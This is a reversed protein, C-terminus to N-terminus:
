APCILYFPCTPCVYADPKPTFDQREIGQMALELGGFLAEEKRASMKIEYTEGTSLNHTHLTVEQGAHHQRSAHLYLLERTGVTPKSKSKGFRTRVLKAPQGDQASLEVRDISVDITRGALNVQLTQRLQWGGTQGAQLQRWLQEVVEEGHQEYLRAFPGEADGHEHWQQHFLEAVEEKQIPLDARGAREVLAKITASMANWFPLFESESGQFAYITSYAYRRPCAQYEELHSSKLNKARVAEIFRPSPQSIFAREIELEPEIEATEQEEENQWSVRRVREDPLGVILADIYGSRKANQKGYRESYSLILQDRARTTGVYFLCAEGSEHARDGDWEAPLMGAPPPTPNYRKQLPFRRQSLGPLYVVPFELGKSAHVTMVRLVEPADGAEEGSEERRGEGGEQRLSLLIQLYDLFGKIQEQLDPLPMQPPEEGAERAQDEIRQRIEQLRLDYTHALQLLNAYDERMVRAQVDGEDATLLDRGLSTELLLYRALLSWVSNSGHLLHKIIAALRALARVGAASLTPPLEERLILALLTTQQARAELLLAEIDEQGLPHAPLRAVRLIGMGSPDAILLLLSLLNKSHEQEMLGARANVPLGVKALERTVKRVMARTRCLVMIDSCRYGEALKAQIDRMLGRLESAEDPAIALTIYPDHQTARATQVAGIGSDPELIAGRFTDALHVIDPRSRYNRSLPLVVADPYDEHFNAINAPSAGRFGYIAQNADGVVWVRKQEGALLRLLVGSARNIDQFEDVLIHQYRQEIAARIDAHESLLQVTLMLLGGFDSDGRRELGRQYLEYVAAVELAREAAERVEDGHAQARMALALERYRAPTVLEDKARSIAKLFDRFPSAPNYLNQYHNLRLSEAQSQLLFYGEADDVLAFDQRLGVRQGHTRLLEACFAHFTSITPSPLDAPLIQQLREQMEQAAKRSFTLALIQEPLVGQSQLLYEARGILTSTKGSGPGAVVLAPTPTEIAAQQFEDYAKKASKPVESVPQESLADKEVPGPEAADTSCAPQETFLGTLRNFLAAQSVGFRAALSEPEVGQVVFLEWVRELPMLLEAAFLNAALERRSRPDYALGPGLLEKTQQQSFLGTVEERVDQVQCPDDPSVGPEDQAAFPTRASAPLDHGTPIHSHLVVHGLEHALTFRRLTASLDRCLWILPEGPELFGYTGGPYDDPHFTEVECGLWAAIQEVPALDDRWDPYALKFRRLLDRAAEVAETRMSVDM